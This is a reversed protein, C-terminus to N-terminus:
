QRCILAAGTIEAGDSTEKGDAVAMSDAGLAGAENLAMRLTEDAGAGRVTFMRILNCQNSSTATVLSVNLGQETLQTSCACLTAMAMLTLLTKSPTKM